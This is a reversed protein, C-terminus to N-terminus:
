STLIVYDIVSFNFHNSEELESVWLALLLHQLVELEIEIKLSVKFTKQASAYNAIQCILDDWIQHWLKEFFL